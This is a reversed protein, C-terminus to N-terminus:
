KKCHQSILQLTYCADQLKDRLAGTMQQMALQPFFLALAKVSVGCLVSVENNNVTRTIRACKRLFIQCLVSLVVQPYPHTEM